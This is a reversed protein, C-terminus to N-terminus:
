YNHDYSLKFPNFLPNIIPRTSIVSINVFPTISEM